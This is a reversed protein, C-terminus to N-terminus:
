SRYFDRDAAGPSRCAGAENEGLLMQFNLKGAPLAIIAKTFHGHRLLDFRRIRMIVGAAALRASFYTGGHAILSAINGDIAAKLVADDADMRTDHPLKRVLDGLDTALRAQLWADSGAVEIIRQSDGFADKRSAAAQPERDCRRSARGM